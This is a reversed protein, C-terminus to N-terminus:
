FDEGQTSDIQYLKGSGCWSLGQCIGVNQKRKLKSAHVSTAGLKWLSVEWM